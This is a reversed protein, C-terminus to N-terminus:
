KTKWILWINMAYNWIAAGTAGFLNSILYHINLINTFLWLITINILIGGLCLTNYKIGRLITNAPKETKTKPVWIESLAFSFIIMTELSLISSYVYNIHFYRTLILYIFMNVFVAFISIVMYRVLKVAEGITESLRYLHKIFKIYERFTLKSKGNNRTGFTMPIEAVEEYKGKTLVELLIKYGVPKLEIGEIVERKLVFYGSLPDKVVRAQPVLIKALLRAGKSVIKRRLKWGEIKGGKAYRSAVAIDKGNKIEEILAPLIEPPHQLDADIVGLIKGNAHKFGEAVASSLDLKGERRIVKIPYQKALEEALKWTQDPSNDDVIIIEYEYRNSLIEHIKKILTPLNKRENYTPIILSFTTTKM